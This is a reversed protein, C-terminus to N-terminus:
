KFPFSVFVGNDGHYMCIRIGHEAALCEFCHKLTVAEDAGTSYNLTIHVKNLAYNIFFTCAHYFDKSPKGKLIAVKGPTNSELQDCSICDGPELHTAKLPTTNTSVPRKYAKGM